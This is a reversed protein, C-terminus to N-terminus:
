LRISGNNKQDQVFRSDVMFDIDDTARTFGAVHLAFGGILAFRIDQEKFKQLLETFVLVFVM